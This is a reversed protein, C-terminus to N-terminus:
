QASAMPWCGWFSMAGHKSLDGCLTRPLYHLSHLYHLIPVAKGVSLVNEHEDRRRTGVLAIYNQITHEKVHLTVIVVSVGCWSSINSSAFRMITLSMTLVAISQKATHVRFCVQKLVDAHAMTAHLDESDARSAGILKDHEAQLQDHKQRCACSRESAVPRTLRKTDQQIPYPPGNANCTILRTPKGKNKGTVTDDAYLHAEVLSTPGVTSPPTMSHVAHFTHTQASMYILICNSSCLPAYPV